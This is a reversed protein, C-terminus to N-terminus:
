AIVDGQHRLAIPREAMRYECQLLRGREVGFLADTPDIM